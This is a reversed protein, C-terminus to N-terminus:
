PTLFSFEHKTTIYMEYVIINLIKHGCFVRPKLYKPEMINSSILGPCAEFTPCHLTQVEVTWSHQAM